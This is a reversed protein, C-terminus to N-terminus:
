ESPAIVIFIQQNKNVHACELFYAKTCEHLSPLKIGEEKVKLKM